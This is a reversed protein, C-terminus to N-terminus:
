KEKIKGVADLEMKIYKRKHFVATVIRKVYVAPILIPYREATKSYARIRRGDPFLRRLLYRGKAGWTMRSGEKQMGRIRNEVAHSMSGYVGCGAMYTLMDREKRSLSDLAVPETASLLSESLTRLTRDFDLMGLKELEGDIYDWHLVEAQTHRFVYNDTITRIGTGRVSYHKYAHATVYIYLDDATYHWGYGNDPDKQLKAKANDFYAALQEDHYKRAFLGVHLEFNYVPKKLYTDHVAEGEEDLEYGRDKMYAQMTKRGAPDFLLDNDAMERMGYGPYFDQILIGKLPAYWIGQEEMYSIIQAREADFLMRRCIAFDKAHKWQDWNKVVEEPHASVQELAMAIMATMKHAHAMKWLAEMDMSAVQQADPAAGHMACAALYCFDTIM